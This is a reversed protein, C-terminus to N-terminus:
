LSMLNISFCTLRQIRKELIVICLIKIKSPSPSYLFSCYPSVKMELRIIGVLYITSIAIKVNQNLFSLAIFILLIISKSFTNIFEWYFIEPRLGQYLILFYQKVKNNEDKKFYKFLLILATIPMAFVWIGLIPFAITLIWKIHNSSFWQEELNVKARIDGIDVKVWQFMVISNQVLRPHLLFIISIFSIAINRSLDPVLRKWIVRLIMWIIWFLILLILPLLATLFVKFIKNSPFPGTINYSTIFCDFSLFAETSGM